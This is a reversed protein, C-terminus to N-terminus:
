GPFAAASRRLRRHQRRSAVPLRGLDRRRPGVEASHRRHPRRLLLSRLHLQEDRFQSRRGTRAPRPGLLQPGGPAPRRRRHVHQHDSQPLAQHPREKRRRPRSRGASIARRDPELSGYVGRKRLVRTAPLEDRSGAPRSRRRARGSDGRRALRPPSSRARRNGSAEDYSLAIRNCAFSVGPRDAYGDRIADTVARRLGTM